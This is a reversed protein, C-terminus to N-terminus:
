KLTDGDFAINRDIFYYYDENYKGTGNCRPCTEGNVLGNGECYGCPAILNLKEIQKDM